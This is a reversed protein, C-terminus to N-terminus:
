RQTVHKSHVFPGVSPAFVLSQERDVQGATWLGDDGVRRVLRSVDPQESVPRVRLLGVLRDVGDFEFASVVSLVSERAVAGPADGDATGDVRGVPRCTRPPTADRPTSV